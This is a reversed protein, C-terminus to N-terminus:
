NWGRSELWELPDVGMADMEVAEPMRIARELRQETILYSRPLKGEGVLRAFLKQEQALESIDEQIMEVVAKACLTANPMGHGSYGGCIWLGRPMSPARGVWPAGDRSHAYIGTWAQLLNLKTPVPGNFDITRPLVARLYQVVSDDVISDDSQGFHPLKGATTRAGGLMLHGQGRVNPTEIFPRSTLYETSNTNSNGSTGVLGHSHRLREGNYPRPPNLATMTERVPVILPALHPLLHSTYANTALLVNHATVSGRPTEVKYRAKQHHWHKLHMVGTVPTNTQLNIKKSEVLNRFIWAVYKYPWLSAAGETLTAGACNINLQAEETKEQDTLWQVYKALEPADTKLRNVAAFAEASMDKTWFSRIASVARYECDIKYDKIFTAVTECNKIEFSAIEPTTDYLLPQLHGGNKSM